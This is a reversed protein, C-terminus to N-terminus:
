GADPLFSRAGRRRKSGVLVYCGLRLAVIHICASQHLLVGAHHRSRRGDAAHRLFAAIRVGEVRGRPHGPFDRPRCPRRCGRSLIILRKPHLRRAFSSLPEDRRQPVDADVRLLEAVLQVHTGRRDLEIALEHQRLALLTQFHRLHRPPLDRYGRLDEEGHALHLRLLRREKSVVVVSPGLQRCLLSPRLGM